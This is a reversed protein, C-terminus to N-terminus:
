PCNEYRGGGGSVNLSLLSVSKQAVKLAEKEDAISGAVPIIPVKAKQM